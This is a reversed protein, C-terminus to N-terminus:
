RKAGASEANALSLRAAENHPDIALAKRYQEAAKTADGSAMYVNGRYVYTMLFKPDLREAEALAALSEATRGQKAYFMGLTAHAHALNELQIAAKIKAIAVDPKGACDAALAWDALTRYDTQGFNAAAEFHPLAEQCRGDSYLAHAFQFHPRSKTPSKSVSDRWLEVPSSWLQARGYAMGSFVVLIAGLTTGLTVPATRWRRVLDVTILLLCIFPLYLRREVFVDQIPVISSTPAMLLLFGFYGYAALPYQKRYIWAAIAWGTLVALFFISGQDFLSRSIKMDHDVNQGFPLAYLLIYHVLARFQTFLYEYWRMDKIGFGASDSVRLVRWVAAIAAVGLVALPVYLRWNERIGKLRFGPNWFYDTLILFLPLVVTHEKSTAAAAFLLLVIAAAQASIAISKRYLFVTFASLFFFVSLVESRSTVYAVSETQIPHLCFLLSAFISLIRRVASRQEVLRLFYDVVLYVLASNLAHLVISVWHYWYPETGVQQYNWYYTAMVLPRVNAWARLSKGAMDPHFFPLYIDDFVFPANLAPGYVGFSLTLLAALGLLYHWLRPGASAAAASVPASKPLIAATTDASNRAQTRSRVKTSKM